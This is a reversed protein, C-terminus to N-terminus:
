EDKKKIEHISSELHKISTLVKEILFDVKEQTALGRIDAILRETKQKNAEFDVKFPGHVHEHLARAVKDTEKQSEKLSSLDSEVKTVLRVIVAITTLIPIASIVMGFIDKVDMGGDM